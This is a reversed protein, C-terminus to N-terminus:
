SFRTRRAELQAATSLYQQGLTGQAIANQANFERAAETPAGQYMGSLQAQQAQSALTQGAGGPAIPQGTTPDM